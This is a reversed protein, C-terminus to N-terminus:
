SYSDYTVSMVYLQKCILYDRMVARPVYSPHNTGRFYEEFTYDPHELYEKCENIFTKYDASCGHVPNGTVDYGTTIVSM